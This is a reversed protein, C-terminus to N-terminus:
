KAAKLKRLLGPTLKGTQGIGVDRQFSRAANVTRSGIIGDATGAPYGLRNLEKQISRVLQKRDLKKRKLAKPANAADLRSLLKQDLKGTQSMGASRQFAKAAAYTKSGPVGDPAGASYGLSNLRVQIRRVLERENSPRVVRLRPGDILDSDPGELRKLLKDNLKGTQPIRARAQFRKAADVTKRGAIGDAPGPDFGLNALGEQIRLVREKETKPAVFKVTPRLEEQREDILAFLRATIEGSPELSENKQFAKVARITKSGSVGDATGANFGLRNLGQQTARILDSGQLETKPGASSSKALAETSEVKVVKPQTNKQQAQQRAAATIAAAGQRKGSPAPLTRVAVRREMAALLRPNIKDNVTLGLDEQYRRIARLTKGGSVGDAPGPQYGLNTLAEQVRRVLPKGGNPRSPSAPLAAKVGELRTLLKDTLDLPETRIDASFRAIANRTGRGAIGDPKGANYGLGNLLRQVREVEGRSLARASVNADEREVDRESQPKALAVQVRSSTESTSTAAPAPGGQPASLASGARAVRESLALATQREAELLQSPTMQNALRDRKHRADADGQRAALDFWKYAQVYDSPVGKGTDYMLGMFFQAIGLGQEAAARYWKVATVDSQAVGKGSRYLRGLNLQAAPEGANAAKQYWKVASAIDVPLGQGDEYMQGLHNQARADGRDAAARFERIAQKYQGRDWADFGRNFDAAVPVVFGAALVAALVFSIPHHPRRMRKPPLDDQCGPAFQVQKGRALSAVSM